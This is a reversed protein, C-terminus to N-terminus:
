CGTYVRGAAASLDAGIAADDEGRITPDIFLPEDMDPRDNDAVQLAEAVRRARSKDLSENLEPYYDNFADKEMGYDDGLLFSKIKKSDGTITAEMRGNDKITIGYQKSLKKDLGREESAWDVTVTTKGESLRKIRAGISENLEPYYDNFADKEMGYDDGLLFSKIKKSDGTITAEMRGNDKITIGYQKSLKKDLGREESAWDVTVTTKGEDISCDGKKGIRTAKKSEDPETDILDEEDVDDAEADAKGAIADETDKPLAESVKVRKGKRGVRTAMKSEDPETDILDEEDVDDAEADAKGAIADETDKPLAESVKMKKGKPGTEEADDIEEPDPDGYEEDYEDCDEEYEDECVKMKKGKPGTEEADDIEEPDPDGYEDEYEYIQKEHKSLTYEEMFKTFLETSM